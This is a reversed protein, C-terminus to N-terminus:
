KVIGNIVSGEYIEFGEGILKGAINGKVTVNKYNFINGEIMGEILLNGHNKIDGNVTGNITVKSNKEIFIDGNVIGNITVFSNEKILAGKYIDNLVAHGQVTKFTPAEININVGGCDGSLQGTNVDVNCAAFSQDPAGLIITSIFICILFPLCKM